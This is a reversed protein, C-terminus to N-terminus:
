VICMNDYLSCIIKTVRHAIIRVNMINPIGTSVLILFCLLQMHGGLISDLLGNGWLGGLLLILEMGLDWGRTFLKVDYRLLLLLYFAHELELDPRHHVWVEQMSQLLLSYFIIRMCTSCKFVQLRNKDTNSGAPVTKWFNEM